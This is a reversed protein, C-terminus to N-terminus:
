PVLGFISHFFWSEEANSRSRPSCIQPISEESSVKLPLLASNVKNLVQAHTHIRPHTHAHNVQLPAGVSHLSLCRSACRARSVSESWCEESGPQAPRRGASGGPGFLLLIGLSASLLAALMADSPRPLRLRRLLFGVCAAKPPVNIAIPPAGRGPAPPRSAALAASM